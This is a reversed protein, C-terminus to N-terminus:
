TLINAIKLVQVLGRGSWSEFRLQAYNNGGTAYALTGQNIWSAKEDEFYTCCGENELFYGGFLM